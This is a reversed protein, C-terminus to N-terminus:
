KTHLEALSSLTFCSSYFMNPCKTNQPSHKCPLILISYFLPTNKFKDTPTWVSLTETSFLQSLIIESVLFKNWVLGWFQALNPVGCFKLSTRDFYIKAAIPQNLQIPLELIIIHHRIIWKRPTDPGFVM